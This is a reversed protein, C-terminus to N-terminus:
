FIAALIVLGNEVMGVAVLVMGMIALSVGSEMDYACTAAHGEDERTTKGGDGRVPRAGEGSLARSVLLLIPYLVM